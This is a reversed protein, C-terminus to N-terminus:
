SLWPPGRLLLAAIPTPEWITFLLLWVTAGFSGFEPWFCKLLPPLPGAAADM